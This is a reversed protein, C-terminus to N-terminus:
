LPIRGALYDRAPHSAAQKFFANAPGSETIRGQHMFLVDDAIRRAQAIDHSVLLIKVGHLHATNVMEEVALTSAPDLSATPEDLFLIEPNAVLSRAIALKQQEGGSLRRAPILAKDALGSLELADKTRQSIESRSCGYVKLAFRINDATSRRLLVPSQFVMSQRRRVKKDAPRGNWKIEGRTPEVLGHLLRLLLSKGAGNPGLLVTRTKAALTCDIQDLLIKEAVAFSLGRVQLPLLCLDLGALDLM